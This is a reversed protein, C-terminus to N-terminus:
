RAQKYREIAAQRSAAYDVIPLPYDHGLVCRAAQQQQSTMTWPEALHTLPVARLEPVYTRVYAGTPDYTKQQAIPNYLRRFLPAPDVGISAIWQWNGVNQATDGDVLWRMFHQEGTRWDLGLNKALFSGVILRARNHMWGEQQLQRMAADIIPYGTRGQQWAALHADNPEWSLAAYRAQFPQTTTHPFHYLIYLYFDRWALQRAFASASDGQPLQALTENASVCGFHLYASLRSTADAALDNQAQPYRSLDHQVFAALRARGAREGGPPANPSLWAAAPSPLASGSISSPTTLQQPAPLVPRRPQQLWQRYFPTFISYVANSKTRITALNAIAARGECGVSAIGEARLANNVKTDRAVAYPSYDTTYYVTDAGTQAALATLVSHPAGSLIILRSGRARLAADLDNLCEALFRQRNASAREGSLLKTDLIFVPLVSSGHRSAAHLAPHDHVRLDNRFWVIAPRSMDNTYPVGRPHHM